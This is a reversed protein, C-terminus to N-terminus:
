RKCAQKAVEGHDVATPPLPQVDGNAAQSAVNCSPYILGQEFNMMM